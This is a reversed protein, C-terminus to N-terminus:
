QTGLCEVVVPRKYKCCQIMPNTTPKYGERLSTNSTMCQGLGVLVELYSRNDVDNTSALVMSAMPRVNSRSM